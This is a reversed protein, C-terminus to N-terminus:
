DAGGDVSNSLTPQRPQANPHAELSSRLRRMARHLRVRAAVATCGLVRAAERPRLDDWFVLTVLERDAEPLADLAALLELDRDHDDQVRPAYESLLREGLAARRRGARHENLLVNRAVALLWPLADAPVEGRRRWAVLFTEAAVDHATGEDVRRLAYAVVRRVHTEYIGTFWRQDRLDMM